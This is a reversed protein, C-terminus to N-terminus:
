RPVSISVACKSSPQQTQRSRQVVAHTAYELLSANGRVMANDAASASYQQCDRTGNITELQQTYQKTSIHFQTLMKETWWYTASSAALM